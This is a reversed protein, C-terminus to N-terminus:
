ALDSAAGHHGWLAGSEVQRELGGLATWGMRSVGNASAISVRIDRHATDMNPQRAVTQEICGALLGAFDSLQDRRAKLTKLRAKLIATNQENFGNDMIHDFIEIAPYLLDRLARVAVDDLSACDSASNCYQPQLIDQARGEVDLFALRYGRSGAHDRPELSIGHLRVGPLTVILGPNEGEALNDDLLAALRRAVTERFVTQLRAGDDLELRHDYADHGLKVADVQWDQGGAKRSVMIELSRLTTQTVQTM